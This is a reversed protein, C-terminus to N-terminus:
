HSKGGASSKLETDGAPLYVKEVEFAKIKLPRQERSDQLVVFM